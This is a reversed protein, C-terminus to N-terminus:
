RPLCLATRAQGQSLHDQSKSFKPHALCLSSTDQCIWCDCEPVQSVGALKHDQFSSVGALQYEPGDGSNMMMSILTETLLTRPGRHPFLCFMDM